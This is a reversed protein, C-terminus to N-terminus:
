RKRIGVINLKPIHIEQVYFHIYKSTLSKIPGRTRTPHPSPGWIDLM